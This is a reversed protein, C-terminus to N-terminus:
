FIKTIRKVTSNKFTKDWVETVSFFLNIYKRISILLFNGFQVVDEILFGLMFCISKKIYSAFAVSRFYNM